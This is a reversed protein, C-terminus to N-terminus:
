AASGVAYLRWSGPVGKLEHERRDEFDFGSGAVLDKVTSSVLVEGPGALAGVRAGINVAIGGVDGKMVECEGTHLGARLEIGLERARSRIQCACRIARGPGDFTALFGDGLTKVENGRHRELERRVLRDHSALLDRWRRDGLEAARRTSDVIDTFMVTALVRDPERPAPAGTIFTTLEELVDDGGDPLWPLHDRGPLELYRAGPIGAAFARGNPEPIIRDGGRHLVLTPVDITPLVGRVDIEWCMRLWAEAAAPSAGRTLMRNWVAEARPDGAMTPAWYKLLWGTDGWSELMRQLFREARERNPMWPYDDDELYRPTGGYLVLSSVREPHTAAFLASLVTGESVGFVVARESGAADMVARLDDMRQELTPLANASVRDSLGTGRKDWLITRGLEAVRETFRASGPDDLISEISVVWGHTVVIDVDGDGIVEYALSVDGNRAYRVAM